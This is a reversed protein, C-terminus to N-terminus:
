LNDNIKQVQPIIVEIDTGRDPVSKILVDGNLLRIKSRISALGIGSRSGNTAEMGQGNDSIQIRIRQHGINVNVRCETAKAHKVVNTMLEQTTRYVALELYKEMGSILGTITCKFKTSDSLQSCIDLIASKLGFQELTTPMLEHSIRRTEKIADTLLKGIYITNKKFDALPIDQQLGNLNLKIGYLIQGIGNHLSESIRHREEELTSLSVRFIELQQEAEMKRIKQEAAYIATTDVDVGLVREAHGEDNRVVTAKLHLLKLKGSVSIELTEEFDSDGNLIHSIVKQAAARGKETAYELYIEPRIEQGLELDFLRYMGDSWIFTKKLLDFDWSGLLAIEESQQLLLYNKLLEDEAEKRATIDMNTGVVGDNLKVFMCSFWNTFGEHVYFYEMQQPQGTQITEVIMDFIGVKKVGPFEIAYRRGVLDTRGTVRELEKNVSVIQFDLINGDADRIAELISMHMLTTDFMSQLQDRSRQLETTRLNVEMELQENFQQLSIEANKRLTIDLSAGLWELITGNKDMVPVARSLVWGSAGETKLIRHELEFTSKKDVARSVAEWFLPHDDEPIYKEMWVDTSTRTDAITKGDSLIFMQKWDASMKYVLNLSATIFLRLQEESKQIAREAKAQEVASWTREATEAALAIEADTWARSESQALSFIGVVKGAKVVPVNVFAQIDFNVLLSVFDQDIFESTHINDVAFPLGTELVVYFSNFDNLRYSGVLSRLDNRFADQCITASGEEINCYYCRDSHFFSLAEETVANEIEIPDSISRLADSVKLLYAQRQDQHKRETIDELVVAILRSERGGIRSASTRYWRKNAEDHHEIHIPKGTKLMHNYMELQEKDSFFDDSCLDGAVIQLGTIREFAPNTEVWRMGTPKSNDDYIMELVSLGDEITNFLTRYKEESHQLIEDKLKDIEIETKKRETIDETNMVFGDDMKVLTQYFWQEQFQEHSYYREQVLTNGSETVQVFQDFFGTELVAPNEQLLSKGIVDGHHQIWTHNTFIWTFDIIKGAEDRVAKFAQIFHLSGDLIAQLSEKNTRIQEEAIIEQTIDKATIAIGDGQKVSSQHFWGEFQEYVYHRVSQNSEGSEVVQKFTDFIGEEISDPNLSLFSKGIVDGFIKEAAINNLIWVFDIIVGQENRVATLVQIIDAAHNILDRLLQDNDNSEM